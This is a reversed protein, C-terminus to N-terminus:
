MLTAQILLIKMLLSKLVRSQSLQNGTVVRYQFLIKDQSLQLAILAM